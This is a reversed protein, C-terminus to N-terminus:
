IMASVGLKLSCVCRRCIENRGVDLNNRFAIAEPSNVVNLFTRQHLNGYPQHFFCPRVSGDAEVVAAVWPANCEVKPFDDLGNMAKYYKVIRTIRAPSEAIYGTRYATALTIFSTRIIKEFAFTEDRSLAIDGVREKTWPTARNFAGSTTDAALFSVRDFGVEESSRVINEFDFYNHRQIVCRATVRFAPDTKKLARVGGAMKDFGGPVNRIRDHVERSGDVSVIVEDVHRVIDGAYREILLGSSLLTIKVSLEALVECFRWLNSHMLAEGGSLVVERVHLKKFEGISRAILEEDIERKQQNAKWIDCMICRCNCRSHPMLILVPLNHIRDTAFTLLRDLM